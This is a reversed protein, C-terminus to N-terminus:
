LPLKQIHCYCCLEGVMSLTEVCKCNKIKEGHEIAIQIQEAKSLNKLENKITGEVPGLSCTESQEIKELDESLQDKNINRASLKM